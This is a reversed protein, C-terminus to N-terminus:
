TFSKKLFYSLTSLEITALNADSDHNVKIGTLNHMGSDLDLKM